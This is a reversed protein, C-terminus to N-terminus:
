NGVIEKTEYCAWLLHKLHRWDVHMWSCEGSTSPRAAEIVNQQLSALCWNVLHKDINKMRCEYVRHQLVGQVNISRSSDLMFLM